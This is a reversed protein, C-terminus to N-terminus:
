FASELEAEQEAATPKVKRIGQKWLRAEAAQAAERIADELYKKKDIDKANKYYAASM